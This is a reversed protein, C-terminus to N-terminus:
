IRFHAHAHMRNSLTMSQTLFWHKKTNNILKIWYSCIDSFADDDDDSWWHCLEALTGSGQCINQDLLPVDTEHINRDDESLLQERQCVCRNMEWRLLLQLM